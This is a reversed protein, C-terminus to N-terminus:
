YMFQCKLHVLKIIQVIVDFRLWAFRGSEQLLHKWQKKGYLQNHVWHFCIFRTWVFYLWRIKTALYHSLPFNFPAALLIEILNHFVHIIVHWHVVRCSAAQHIYGAFQKEQISSQASLILWWFKISVKVFCKVQRTKKYIPLNRLPTCPEKVNSPTKYRHYIPNTPTLIKLIQSM